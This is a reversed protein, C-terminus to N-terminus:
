QTVTLEPRFTRSVALDQRQTERVCVDPVACRVTLQWAVAPGRTLTWDLRYVHQPDVTAAM